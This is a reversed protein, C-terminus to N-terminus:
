QPPAFQRLAVGFNGGGGGGATSGLGLGGIGGFGGGFGFSGFGGIGGGFGGFAGFFRAALMLQYLTPAEDGYLGEAQSFAVIVRSPDLIGRQALLNIIIERRAEDLEENKATEVVVPFPVSPLRHAIMDLVYKGYPGLEKGARYWMHKYIVFDDMEAKTEQIHIIRNMYTGLPAPQAGPPITSCNDICRFPYLCREGANLLSTSALGAGLVLSHIWRLKIAM